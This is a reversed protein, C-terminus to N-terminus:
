ASYTKLICDHTTFTSAGGHRQGSCAHKVLPNREALGGNAMLSHKDLWKLWMCFLQPAEARHNLAPPHLSRFSGCVSRTIGSICATPAQGKDPQQPQLSFIADLIATLGGGGRWRHWPPPTGSAGGDNWVQLLTDADRSWGCNIEPLLPISPTKEHERELHQLRLTQHRHLM